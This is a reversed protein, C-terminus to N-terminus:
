SDLITKFVCIVNAILVLIVFQELNGFTSALLFSVFSGNRIGKAMRLHSGAVIMEDLDIVQKDEFEDVTSREDWFCKLLPMLPKELM